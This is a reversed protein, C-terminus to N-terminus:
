ENDRSANLFQSAGSELFTLGARLGAAVDDARVAEDPHHSIGGPSRLFIMASPLLPALIMADHGAGSVMRLPPVGTASIADACLATLAPHLAVAAQDLEIEIEAKIQRQVAIVQADALMKEMAARRLSDDAHRVDLSCQVSGPIVNAAGPECTISGTTAVLGATACAEAEVASLWQVAAALADRRLHMPTTGAHGAQGRFTVVARSQGVIAEVVGLALDADELVPGQEIHFELYARARPDLIPEVADPHVAAYDSLASAMLVGSADKRALHGPGLTGALARSGIFPIGYRVGEEDSFGIVEIAFPLRRGDLAEVLALGMMVGLIGDYRGANPVTDLHSAILLRPADEGSAAPYLGHLNGARDVFVRMGAAEMWVRILRHCDEMPPSLLRRLIQGPEETCRSLAECRALITGALAEFDRALAMGM